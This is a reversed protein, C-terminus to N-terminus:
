TLGSDGRQFSAAISIRSYTGHKSSRGGWHYVGENWGLIDGAKTPLARIDQYNTVGYTTLNNPFTPTM